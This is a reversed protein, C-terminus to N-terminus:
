KHKLHEKNLWLIAPEISSFLRVPKVPKFISIYFNGMLRQALSFTLMATVTTSELAEASALYKTSEKDVETYKGPMVLLKHPKLNTLTNIYGTIEQCDEKRYLHNDNLHIVVLENKHLTATAKSGNHQNYIKGFLNSTLSKM